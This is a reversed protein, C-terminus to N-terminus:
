SMKRGKIRKFLNEFFNTRGDNKPDRDYKSMTYSGDENETLLFSFIYGAPKGENDRFMGFRLDNFLLGEQIETICFYDDSFWRLASITPDTNRNNLLDHNKEIQHFDVPVEDFLSYEGIYYYEESEATCSWLINNLLTASTSFRYAETSADQLEDEIHSNVNFKNSITFALYLCSIILGAHNLRSRMRSERSFFAAALLCLLFPVTYLPDAVSVTGWAVKYNSFPAFIQTGYLTFCDLIIHTLFVWFLMWQWEGRTVEPRQWTGSLYKRNVHLILLSFILISAIIVASENSFIGALFSVVKIIVLSAVLKSTIAIANHFRSSYLKQILYGLVIAGIVSFFISHSIGRHFLLGDLDTMFYNGVVDLDPITGAVAGWVMARNGIKKGLILEGVAAGLTIQSLSDM